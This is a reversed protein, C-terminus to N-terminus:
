LGFFCNINQIYIISFTNNYNRNTPQIRLKNVTNGM